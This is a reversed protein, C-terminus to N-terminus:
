KCTNISTQKVADVAEAAGVFGDMFSAAKPWGVTTSDKISPNTPASSVASGAFCAYILIYISIFTQM